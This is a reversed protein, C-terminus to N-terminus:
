PCIFEVVERFRGAGLRTALDKLARLDKISIGEGSHAAPREAPAAEAPARGKKRRGRLSRLGAKKRISSKYSSIMNASMDLGMKEKLHAQIDRPSAKMGLVGMAQRVADMQNVKGSGNNAGGPKSKKRPM